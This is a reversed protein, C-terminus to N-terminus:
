KGKPVIMKSDSPLRACERAQKAAAEFPMGASVLYCGYIFRRDEDTSKASSHMVRDEGLRIGNEALWEGFEAERRAGAMLFDDGYVPAQGLRIADVAQM